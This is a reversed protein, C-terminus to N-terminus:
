HVTRETDRTVDEIRDTHSFHRHLSRLPLQESPFVYSFEQVLSSGPYLKTRLMLIIFNPIVSTGQILDAVSLHFIIVMLPNLHRRFRTRLCWLQVTNLVITLVAIVVIGVWREGM